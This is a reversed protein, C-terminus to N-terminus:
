PTPTARASGTPTGTGSPTVSATPSGEPSPTSTGSDPPQSPEPSQTPEPTQTPEPPAAVVLVASEGPLNGDGAPVSVVYQGPDPDRVEFRFTGDRGVRTTAVESRGDVGLHSLTARLHTGGPTVTGTIVLPGGAASDDVTAVVVSGVEVTFTASISADVSWTGVFRWRYVTRTDPQVTVRPDGDGVPETAGDVQTFGHAGYEQEELVLLGHPLPKGRNDRLSGELTVSDGAVIRTASGTITTTSTFGELDYTTVDGASGLRLADIKFPRGDCGFGVAYFGPGDGGHAALFEPVASPAEAAAVAQWTSLDYQTWTYTLGTAEVPRWGGPAEELGARGIWILGTTWDAPAIYGAYAVGSAGEAAHLSLGAVTTAAMSGVQHQSGVANGGGLDYKLSRTGAPADPSRSLYTAIPEAARDFIGACGTISLGTTSGEPFDLGRVVVTSDAKAPAAWFVAAMLLGVAIAIPRRM